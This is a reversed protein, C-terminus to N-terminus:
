YGKPAPVCIWSDPTPQYIYGPLSSCYTATQPINPQCNGNEDPHYGNYCAVPFQTKLVVRTILDASAQAPFVAAISGLMLAAAFAPKANM